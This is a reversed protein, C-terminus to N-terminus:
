RFWPHERRWLSLAQRRTVPGMAEEGLAGLRGTAEERAAERDAATFRCPPGVAALDLGHLAAANGGLIARKVETTLAPYGHREQLEPTIEFARFAEIQPQPTGYWISDTGWLVRDPGVAGVVKGLVHAAQTPDGMNHYWTSGLECYVNASPGVGAGRLSRVLRDVGQGDERFAREAVDTEFGSHYVVFTVEPFAAAAPGIDSPDAGFGKHVAVVAPGTGEAALDAVHALFAEGVAGEFSYGGGVHTYTKWAVIEHESALATMGELAADLDGVQPFAEGQLLVRDDGCLAEALRRAVEMKEVSMPHDDDVIPLASLVAVSTDSAGLVLDAWRDITFCLEAGAGCEAQPFDAGFGNAEPDLFHTQVDVIVEGDVPGLTTEAATSDTAAEPPVTFTGGASGGGAEDDSCAALALLTTATGMSSRLFARRDVGLARAHADADTLARRVAEAAVPTAPVPAYEGNSWPRLLVRALHM